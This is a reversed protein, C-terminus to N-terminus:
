PYSTEIAAAVFFSSRVDVPIMSKEFASDLRRLGQLLKLNSLYVAFIGKERRADTNNFSVKTHFRGEEEGHIFPFVTKNFRGVRNNDRIEEVVRPIFELAYGHFLNHCNTM